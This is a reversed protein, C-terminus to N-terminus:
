ENSMKMHVMTKSTLLVTYTFRNVFAVAIEM